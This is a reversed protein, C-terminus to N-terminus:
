FPLEAAVQNRLAEDPATVAFVWVGKRWAFVSTGGGTFTFWHQEGINASTRSGSRDEFFSIGADLQAAAATPNSFRFITILIGGDYSGTVSEGGGPLPVPSTQVLNFGAVQNPLLDVPSESMAPTPKAYVNVPPGFVGLLIIALVAVVAVVAVVILILLKRNM